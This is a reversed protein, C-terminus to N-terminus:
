RTPYRRGRSRSESVYRSWESRKASVLQTVTYQGIGLDSATAVILISSTVSWVVFDSVAFHRLVLWNVFLAVLAKLAHLLLSLGADASFLRRLSM